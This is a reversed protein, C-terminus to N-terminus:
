RVFRFLDGLSRLADNLHTCTPVGRFNRRVHERLEDLRLGIVDVASAAANPCDPGPLVHPVAEIATVLRTTPDVTATIGYEHVVTDTGDLEVISDRFFVEAAGGCIDLRRRRRMAGPAMDGLEHWALPDTGDDLALAPPGEGFYPREGREIVSIMDGGAIWGACTGVPPQRESGPIRRRGTRVLSSGSILTASPVDDLLLALLSGVPALETILPRRFGAIAPLGILEPISAAEIKPAGSVDVVVEISATDLVETTGDDDTRLDRGTGRLVLWGAGNPYTM